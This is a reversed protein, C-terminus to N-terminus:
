KDEGDKVQRTRMSILGLTKFTIKIKLNKHESASIKPYFEAYFIM